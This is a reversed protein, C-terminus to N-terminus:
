ADHLQRLDKRYFLHEHGKPYDPISGIRRYGLKEYFSPAQFSHTSLVVQACGRKIAETEAALMLESGLGKARHSAEVWLRVIECCDGWTHGAIGAITSGSDDTVAAWLIQGDSIGTARVNFEYIRDDLLSELEPNDSSQIRVRPLTM